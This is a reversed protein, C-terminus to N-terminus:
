KFYTEWMVITRYKLKGGAANKLGVVPSHHWSSYGQTDWILDKFSAMAHQIFKGLSSKVQKLSM